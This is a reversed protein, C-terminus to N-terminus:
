ITNMCLNYTTLLLRFTRHGVLVAHIDTRNELHSSSNNYDGAVLLMRLAQYKSLTHHPVPVATCKVEFGLCPRYVLYVHIVHIVHSLWVAVASSWLRSTLRQLWRYAFLSASPQTKKKGVWTKPLLHNKFPMNKGIGLTKGNKKTFTKSYTNRLENPMFLTLELFM